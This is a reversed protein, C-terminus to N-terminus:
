PNCHKQLAQEIRRRDRAKRPRLELARRLHRCAEDRRGSRLLVQVAFHYHTLPDRENLKLAQRFYEEAQPLDNQRALLGGLTSLLLARGRPARVRQLGDELIRRTAQPRGQQAELLAWAQFVPAHKPDAQAAQQFLERAREVNGQDKELLAWAQFVPAHKPDAAARQFLERAREVNGQDKELLAWAQFV